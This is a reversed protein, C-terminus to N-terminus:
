GVQQIGALYWTPDDSDPTHQFIWIENVESTQDEITVGSSDLTKERLMATFNVAAWELDSEIWSDAIEAQLTAVETQNKTGQKMDQAIRDAMEATCFTRIDDSDGHDWAHQLRVYIEKAAPIFFKADIDPRLASGAATALPTGSNEQGFPEDYGPMASGGAGAYAPQSVAPAARKRLFFFLAAAIAGIIVIDLFNIGEFAGGFFLAGLLGGLALGGLMGMLGTRASGKQGNQPMAKQQSLSSAPATNHMTRQQGMNAGGGLRRADADDALGLMSLGFIALVTLMFFKRM